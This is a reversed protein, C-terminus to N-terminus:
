WPAAPSSALWDRGTCRPATGPTFLALGWLAAGPDGGVVLAVGAAAIGTEVLAGFLLTLRRFPILAAPEGDLEITRMVGRM